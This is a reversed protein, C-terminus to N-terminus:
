AVPPRLRADMSPDLSSQPLYSYSISHPPLGMMPQGPATHPQLQQQQQQMQQQGGLPQSAAAGAFAAPMASMAHASGGPGQLIHIIPTMGYQLAPGASPHGHSPQPHAVPMASAGAAAGSPGGPQHMALVQQYMNRSAEKEYQGVREELYKNLQKLQGIERRLNKVASIASIIISAKDVKPAQGPEEVLKALEMFRDNMRYRRAKERHAKNQAAHSDGDAKASSPCPGDQCDFPRKGAASSTGAGPSTATEAAGCTLHAQERIEQRAAALESAEAAAKEPEEEAFVLLQEPFDLDGLAASDWPLSEM